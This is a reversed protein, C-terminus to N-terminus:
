EQNQATLLTESGSVEVSEAAKPTKKEWSQNKDSKNDLWEPKVPRHAGSAEKVPWLQPWDTERSSVCLHMRMQCPSM